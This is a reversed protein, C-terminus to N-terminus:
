HELIERAAEKDRQGSIRSLNKLTAGAHGSVHAGLSFGILHFDDLSTNLFATLRELFLAVQLLLM